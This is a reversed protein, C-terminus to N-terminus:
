DSRIIIAAADYSIIGTLLLKLILLFLPQLAKFNKVVNSNGLDSILGHMVRSSAALTQNENQPKLIVM